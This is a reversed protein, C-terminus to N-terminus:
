CKENKQIKELKGRNCPRLLCGSEKNYMNCEECQGDCEFECYVRSM